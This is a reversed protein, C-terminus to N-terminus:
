RTVNPRDWYKYTFTVQLRLIDQDAWTVQQPAVLTPWVKRLSWAYIPKPDTSRKNLEDQSLVLPTGEALQGIEHYHFVDIDAWYNEAYDFNFNSTPNIIDMWDDFFQREISDNRCIFSANSPSYLVNNPFSQAPGYYRVETVNFGRGPFEFADCAYILSQADTALKSRLTSGTPTIRVVYRASKAVQGYADLQSRFTNMDLNRPATNNNNFAM